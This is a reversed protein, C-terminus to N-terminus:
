LDFILHCFCAISALAALVQIVTWAITAETPYTQRGPHRRDEPPAFLHRM